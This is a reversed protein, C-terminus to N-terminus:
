KSSVYFKINLYMQSLLRGSILFKRSSLDTLSSQGEKIPKGDAIRIVHKDNLGARLLLGTKGTSIMSYTGDLLGWNRIM